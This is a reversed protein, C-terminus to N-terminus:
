FSAMKLCYFCLPYVNLIDKFYVVAFIRYATDLNSCGRAKLIFFARFKLFRLIHRDNHM